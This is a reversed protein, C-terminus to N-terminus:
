LFEADLMNKNDLPNWLFSTDLQKDDFKLKRDLSM